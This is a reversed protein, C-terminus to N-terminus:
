VKVAVNSDLVTRIKSRLEGPAFPKQILFMGEEIVGQAAIISDTYGSMFLVKTDPSCASIKEAIVRGSVGPLVVDTLLVHIPGRYRRAIELAEGGNSSELVTYGSQELVDRILSRLAEEDEVLLVTESGDVAKAPSKHQPEELADNVLPLYTKFITGKKVQSNVSIHGGSQKVVGYVVALGLGTGKDKPKTTFFPEFIHSQTEKDMGTGTDSVSLMVYRGPVTTPHRKVYDEGLEVTSTEIILNGGDPMADRANVALNMIVQEIQGHDAKVRGLAPDLLTTLEINEGILRRLMKSMDAVVSNLNLIKPELVQKRSFALLQRTLSAARQAAKRIEELNKRSQLTGDFREELVGTYGIIVCLLNNFDHAIAGSLRGVSEMRQSQRLQAELVKRETIDEAIVEFYKLKGELDWAPRGTLNVTIPKGDKRKWSVEIDRFPLYSNLYHSLPEKVEGCVSV